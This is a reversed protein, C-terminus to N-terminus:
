DFESRFEQQNFEESESALRVNRSAALDQRWKVMCVFSGVGCVRAEATMLFNWSAVDYTLNTSVNNVEDNRSQIVALLSGFHFSESELEDEDSEIALCVNRGVAVEQTYQILRSSIILHCKGGGGCSFGKGSRIEPRGMLCNAKKNGPVVELLTTDWRGSMSQRVYMGIKSSWIENECLEIQVYVASRIKMQQCKIKMQQYRAWQIAYLAMSLRKKRYGFVVKWPLFLGELVRLDGKVKAPFVDFMGMKSVLKEHQTKGLGKTLIDATQETSSIMKTEIVGSVIKDRVFHLDIELHKTREHFVPNAPSGKLYKLVKLAIKIDSKLPKHM